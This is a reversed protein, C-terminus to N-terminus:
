LIWLLRWYVAYIPNDYPNRYANTAKSYMEDVSLDYKEEEEDTVLNEPETSVTESEKLEETKQTVETENEEGSLGLIKEYFELYTLETKDGFITDGDLACKTFDSGCKDMMCERLDKDCKNSGSKLANQQASTAEDRAASAERAARQKRIQEAFSNESTASELVSTVAAEFQNSKNLIIPATEVTPQEPEATIPETITELVSQKTNAVSKRATASGRVATRPAANACDNFAFCLGM